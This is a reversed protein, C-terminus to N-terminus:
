PLESLKKFEFGKNRWEKILYDLIETNTQSVAHLLIISGNHTREMILDKAYDLEPQNNVDYDRYALSWFITKYELDQTYHLSLENYAGMPPRFFKPMKGGIAEEFAQETGLFESEFKEKDELALKDMSQHTVSHNCVLHGEEVMRKVLEKNNEIYPKTVFFAAKVNNEKLTDLIKPTFGNEYGEDFTLYICKSDTDGVYYADRDKILNLVEEPEEPTLGEKNPMFFWQRETNDLSDINYSINNEKELQPEKDTVIANEKVIKKKTENKDSIKIRSVKNSSNIISSSTTTIPKTKKIPSSVKVEKKPKEIVIENTNINQINGCGCLSITITILISVLKKNM